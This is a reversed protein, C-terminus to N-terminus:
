FMWSHNRRRRILRCDGVSLDARPGFATNGTKVSSPSRLLHAGFVSVDVAFSRHGCRYRGAVTNTRKGWPGPARSTGPGEGKRKRGEIKWPQPVGTAGRFFTSQAPGDLDCDPAPPSARFWLNRSRKEACSTAGPVTKRITSWPTLAASRTTSAATHTCTGNAL